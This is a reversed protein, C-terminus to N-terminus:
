CMGGPFFVLKSIKRRFMKATDFHQKNHSDGVQSILWSFLKLENIYLFYFLLKKGISWEYSVLQFFQFIGALAASLM